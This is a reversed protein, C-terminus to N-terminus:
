KWSSDQGTLSSHLHTLGGLNAYSAAGSGVYTVQLLNSSWYDGGFTARITPTFNTHSQVSLSVASSNSVHGAHSYSHLQDLRTNFSSGNGSTSIHYIKTIHGWYYNGHNSVILLGSGGHSKPSANHRTQGSSTNYDIDDRKTNSMMGIPVTFDVKFNPSDSQDGQNSAAIAVCIGAGYLGLPDHTPEIVGRTNSYIKVQPDYVGGGSMQNITFHNDTDAKIEWRDYLDDSEDPSLQIKADGGEPGLITLLSDGSSDPNFQLNTEAVLNTGDGTTVRNNANNSVTVGSAPLSEFTPDGGNNARLFKGDNSSTGHPLKALTVSEDTIHQTGVSNNNLESATIANADIESSGVADAPIKASTIADDEISATSIKTIAM